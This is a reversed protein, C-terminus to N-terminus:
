RIVRLYYSYDRDEQRAKNKKIARITRQHIITRKKKKKKIKGVNFTFEM